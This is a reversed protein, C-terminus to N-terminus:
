INSISMLSSLYSIRAVAPVLPIPAAIIPNKPNAPNQKKPIGITHQAAFSEGPNATASYPIEVATFLAQQIIKPEIIAELSEVNLSIACFM